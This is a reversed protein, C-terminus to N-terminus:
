SLAQPPTQLPKPSATANQNCQAQEAFAYLAEGETWRAEPYRLMFHGLVWSKRCSSLEPTWQAILIQLEEIPDM